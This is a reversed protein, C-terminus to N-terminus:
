KKPLPTLKDHLARKAALKRYAEAQKTLDAKLKPRNGCCGPARFRAGQGFVRGGNENTGDGVAIAFIGRRFPDRELIDALHWFAVARANSIFSAALQPPRSVSVDKLITRSGM